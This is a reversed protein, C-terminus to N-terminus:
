WTMRELQADSKKATAKIVLCFHLHILDSAQRNASFEYKEQFIKRVRYKRGDMISTTYVILIKEGFSSAIDM